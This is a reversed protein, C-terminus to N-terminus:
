PFYVLTLLIHYLQSAIPCDFWTIQISVICYLAIGFLILILSTMDGLINILDNQFKSCKNLITMLGHTCFFDSNKLFITKTKSLFLM